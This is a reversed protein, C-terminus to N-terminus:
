PGGPGINRTRSWYKQDPVLIEPPGLKGHCGMSIYPTFNIKSYWLDPFAALETGM